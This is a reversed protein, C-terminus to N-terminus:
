SFWGWDVLFFAFESSPLGRLDPLLALFLDDLVSQGGKSAVLDEFVGTNIYWFRCIESARKFILGLPGHIHKGGM